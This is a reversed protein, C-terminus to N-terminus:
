RRYTSMQLSSTRAPSRRLCQERAASGITNAAPPPIKPDAQGTPQFGRRTRTVSPCRSSTSDSVASSRGPSGRTEWRGLSGVYLAAAREHEGEQALIMALNCHATQSDPQLLMFSKAKCFAIWKGEPSFRAFYNSMGNNSAGEIPEAKGGKGESFPIRYLDFLFTKASTNM